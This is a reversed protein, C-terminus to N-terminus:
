QKISSEALLIELICVLQIIILYESNDAFSYFWWELDSIRIEPICM